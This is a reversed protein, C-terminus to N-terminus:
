PTFFVIFREVLSLWAQNSSSWHSLLVRTEGLFQRQLLWSDVNHTDSSLPFRGSWFEATSQQRAAGAERGRLDQVLSFWSHIGASSRLMIRGEKRFTISLTLYGKKDSLIVDLIDSVGM